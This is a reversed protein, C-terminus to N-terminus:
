FGLRNTESCTGLYSPRSPTPPLGSSRSEGVGTQIATPFNTIMPRFLNLQAIELDFAKFGGPSHSRNDRQKTVSSSLQLCGSNVNQNHLRECRWLTRATQRWVLGKVPEVLVHSVGNVTNNLLLSFYGTQSTICPTSPKNSHSLGHREHWSAVTSFHCICSAALQHSMLTESPGRRSRSRM